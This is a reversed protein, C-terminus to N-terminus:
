KRQISTSVVGGELTVKFPKYAHSTHTQVVILLHGTGDNTWPYFVLRTRQPHRARVEKFSAALSEM